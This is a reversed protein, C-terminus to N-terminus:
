THVCRVMMASDDEEEEKPETYKAPVYDVDNDDDDDISSSSASVSGYDDEHNLLELLQQQIETLLSKISLAAKAVTKSRRSKLAETVRHIDLDSLDGDEVAAGDPQEM